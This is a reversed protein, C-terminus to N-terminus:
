DLGREAALLFSPAPKFESDCDPDFDSKIPSVITSSDVVDLVFPFFREVFGAGSIGAHFIEVLISEFSLPVGDSLLAPDADATLMKASLFTCIYIALKINM